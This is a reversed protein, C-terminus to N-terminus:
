MLFSFVCFYLKEFYFNSFYVKFGHSFGHGPGQNLAQPQAPGKAVQGGQQADLRSTRAHSRGLRSQSVILAPGFFLPSCAGAPQSAARPRRRRPGGAGGWFPCRRPGIGILEAARSGSKSTPMLQLTPGIFHCRSLPGLEGDLTKGRHTVGSKFLSNYIIVSQTCPSHTQTIIVLPTWEVVQSSINKLLCQTASRPSLHMIMSSRPFPV